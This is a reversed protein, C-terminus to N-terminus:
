LFPVWIKDTLVLCFSGFICVMLFLLLALIFRQQPTMGLFPPRQVKPRAPVMEEEPPVEEEEIFTASNRLDDLM